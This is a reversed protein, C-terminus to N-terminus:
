IERKIKRVRRLFEDFCPIKQQAQVLKLVLMAALPKQENICHVSKM